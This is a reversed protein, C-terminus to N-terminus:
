GGLAGGVITGIAVGVGGTAVAGPGTPSGAAGGFLGGIAGGAWSGFATGLMSGGIQTAVPLLALGADVTMAAIRRPLSMRSYEGENKAWTEWVSTVGQAAAIVWGIGTLV